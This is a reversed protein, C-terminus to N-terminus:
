PQGVKMCRLILTGGTVFGASILGSVISQKFPTNLQRLALLVAGGAFVGMLVSAV